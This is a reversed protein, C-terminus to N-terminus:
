GPLEKKAIGSFEFGKQLERFNLDVIEWGEQGLQNLYAEVVERDKGKFVGGGELDRSDVVKYAWKKM